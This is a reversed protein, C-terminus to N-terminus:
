RQLGSEIRVPFVRKKKSPSYASACAASAEGCLLRGAVTVKASFGLFL